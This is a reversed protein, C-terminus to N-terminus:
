SDFGKKPLEVSASAQAKSCSITTNSGLQRTSVSRHQSTQKTHFITPPLSPRHSPNALRDEGEIEVYSTTTKKRFITFKTMTSKADKLLKDSYKYKQDDPMSRVVPMINEYNAIIENPDLVSVKTKIISQFHEINKNISDLGDCDAESIAALLRSYIRGSPLYEEQKVDSNKYKNHDAVLRHYYDITTNSLLKSALSGTTNDPNFIRDIEHDNLALGIADSVPYNKYSKESCAAVDLWFTYIQAAQEINKAMLIDNIAREAIATAVSLNGQNFKDTQNKFKLKKADNEKIEEDNPDKKLTFVEPAKLSSFVLAHYDTLLEAVAIVQNKYRTKDLNHISLKSIFSQHDIM